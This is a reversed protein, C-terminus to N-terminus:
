GEERAKLVRRITRETHGTEEEIAALTEGAARLRRILAQRAASLRLGSPAGPRRPVKPKMWHRVTQPHLGFEQALATAYEGAQCRAVVQEREEAPRDSEVSM